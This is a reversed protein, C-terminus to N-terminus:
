DLFARQIKLLEKVKENDCAEIYLATLNNLFLAFEMAKIQKEYICRETKYKKVTFRLLKDKLNMRSGVKKKKIVKSKIINYCM